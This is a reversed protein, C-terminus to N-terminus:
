KKSPPQSTGNGEKLSTPADDKQLRTSVAHDVKMLNIKVKRLFKKISRELLADFRQLPVRSMARDLMHLERLKSAEADSVRPVGRSVIYIVAALALVAIIEFIFQFATAM